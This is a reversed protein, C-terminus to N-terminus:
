LVRAMNRFQNTLNALFERNLENLRLAPPEAILLYLRVNGLVTVRLMDFSVVSADKTVVSHCKELPWAFAVGTIKESVLDFLTRM